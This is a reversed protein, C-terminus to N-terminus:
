EDEGDYGEPEATVKLPHGQTRAYNMVKEVKSEAVDRSYAGVVGWGKHHVELMIQTAETIEKRFVDVLVHVVFEQTTYDDNHFIVVFRRPRKTKARTEVVIDQDGDPSDPSTSSNFITLAM